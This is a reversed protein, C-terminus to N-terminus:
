TKVMRVTTGSDFCFSVEDMVAQICHIGRGRESFVATDINPLKEPRFGCGSDTVSISVKESTAICSVTFCGGDEGSKGHEIANAVAEGIALMIDDRNNKSVGVYETARSIRNRAEQCHKMSSPLTFIDVTWNANACECSKAGRQHTCERRLCFIDSVLYKELSNRVAKSAHTLHLRKNRDRLSLAISALSELTYADIEELGGLDLPVCHEFKDALRELLSLIETVNSNRARGTAALSPQYGDIQVAISLPATTIVEAM